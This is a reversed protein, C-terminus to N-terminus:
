TAHAAAQNNSLLKIKNKLKKEFRSVKDMFQRETQSLLSEQISEQVIKQLFALFKEKSFCSLKTRLEALMGNTFLVNGQLRALSSLNATNNDRFDGFDTHLGGADLYPTDINREQSSGAM